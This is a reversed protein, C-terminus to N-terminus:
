WRICRCVWVLVGGCLDAAVCCIGKRASPSPACCNVEQDLEVIGLVVVCGLFRLPDGILQKRVSSYIGDAGVLLDCDHRDGGGFLLTVGDASAEYGEFKCGWRITGPELADVLLQRLKQRPIHINRNNAIKKKQSKSPLAESKGLETRFARGYYGVIQGEPTFSYHSTSPADNQLEIGLERIASGAQQM